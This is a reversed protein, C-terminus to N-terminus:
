GGAGRGRELFGHRGEVFGGLVQCSEKHLFRHAPPLPLTQGRLGRLERLPIVATLMEHKRSSRPQFVDAGRLSQDSRECDRKIEPGLESHM